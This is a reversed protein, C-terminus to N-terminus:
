HFFARGFRTSRFDARGSFTASQFRAIHNTFVFGAFTVPRDFHTFGFDITEDLAELRWIGDGGTRAVFAQHFASEEEPSLPAVEHPPIGDKVLSAREEDTMTSAMWRNWATRNKNVIEEVDPDRFMEEPPWGELPAMSIWESEKPLQGYLTALCYWPNENAPRLAPKDADSMEYTRLSARILVRISLRALSGVPQGPAGVIHSGSPTAKSYGTCSYVSDCCTLAELLVM